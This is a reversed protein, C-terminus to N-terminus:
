YFELDAWNNDMKKLRFISLSHASRSNRVHSVHNLVVGTQKHSEAGGAIEVPAFQQRSKITQRLAPRKGSTMNDSGRSGRVHIIREKSPERAVDNSRAVLPTIFANMVPADSISTFL